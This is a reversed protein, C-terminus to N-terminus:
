RILTINGNRVVNTGDLLSAVLHWVYVGVDLSRGEYTGDWGYSQNNTTFVLQGWRNYITLQYNVIGSGVVNFIDNRGDKNPSFALPLDIVSCEATVKITVSDTGAFCGNIDTVSAVYTINKQPIAIPQACDTCSLGDAPSWTIVGDVNVGLLVAQRVCITTDPHAVPAAPAPYVGLHLSDSQDCGHEDIASLFYTIDSEPTAVPDPISPNSLGTTPNWQYDVAGSSHLQVSQGPCLTTDPVANLDLTPFVEVFVSDIATCGGPGQVNVYYLTSTEPSAMPDECIFCSLTNTPTWYYSSAGSGHLQISDGKCISGGDGAEVTLACECKKIWIDDIGFDNGFAIDNLDKLCIEASTTFGSQWFQSFPSWSGTDAAPSFAGFFPFTNIYLQIMAPNDPAVSTAWYSIQYFTNPEMTVTQCWFADNTNPSGNVILFNGTGTTHDAGAWGSHFFDPDTGVSYMREDNICDATNCYDYDSIFASNGDSFDGNVIM